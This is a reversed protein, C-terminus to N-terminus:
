WKLPSLIIDVDPANLSNLNILHTTGFNQVEKHEKSNTYASIKIFLKKFEFNWSNIRGLL